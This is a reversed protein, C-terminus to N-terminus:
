LVRIVVMTMDDSQRYDGTFKKIEKCLDDIIKKASDYSYAKEILNQLREEGFEESKENMAETFGDTYFIVIDGSALKIEALELTQVFMEGRDLGLAMGSPLFTNCKSNRSVVIVPNHGARAYALNKRELDVVAYIMSVFNGRKITRYMLSNVKILVDRPQINGEAHSQLIGKTLTMYIAAPVGKGSVDGIAIGLRGDGLPIFDYYDGGVEEAPICIGAIDFGPVKPNDQPLLGIQVQRAIELERTIRARESIRRVHEPLESGKFEFAERRKLGIFGIIAPVFGFSLAALGQLKFNINETLLFPVAGMFIGYIFHAMISTLLGYKLFLYNLFLGIGFWLILKLYFPYIDIFEGLMGVLAAILVALWLRNFRKRLWTILFLRHTIGGYLASFVPNLALGVVIIKHFSVGERIQGGLLSTGLLSLITIAGLMFFGAAYGTFISEAANLTFFKRNLFGDLAALTRAPWSERVEAEGVAWGLFASLAMPLYVFTIVFTSIMLLGQFRTLGGGGTSFQASSLLTNTFHVVGLVFIIVFFYRATKVGAEGDHYKKVFIVTSLLLIFILLISHGVSYFFGTLANEKQYQQRIERPIDFDNNYRGVRDGKIEVTLKFAAGPFRPDKRSWVFNHDTRRVRQETRHSELEYQELNIKETEQLFKIAIAQAKVADLRAGPWDEPIAHEMDLVKGDSTLNVSFTEQPQGQPIDQYWLVRWSDFPVQQARILEKAKDTGVTKELYLRREGRSSTTMQHKFGQVDYGKAKLFDAARRYVEGRDISYRLAGASYAWHYLVIYAMLGFLGLLFLGRNQKFFDAKM